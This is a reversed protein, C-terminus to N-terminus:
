AGAPFRPFTPTFLAALAPGRSPADGSFRKPVDGITTAGSAKQRADKKVRELGKRANQEAPQAISKFPKQM